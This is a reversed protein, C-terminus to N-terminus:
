VIDMAQGKRSTAENVYYDYSTGKYTKDKKSYEEYSILEFTFNDKEFYLKVSTKAEKDGHRPTVDQTDSKSSGSFLKGSMNRYVAEIVNTKGLGNKGQLIIGNDGVLIEKYAFNRYNQLVIKKLIPRQATQTVEFLDTM